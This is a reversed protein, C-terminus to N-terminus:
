CPFISSASDFTYGIGAGIIGFFIGSIVPVYSPCDFSCGLVGLVLGTSAGILFGGLSGKAGGKRKEELKTISALPITRLITRGLSSRGRRVGKSKLVLTDADLSVITGVLRRGDISPAKIRVRDGSKLSPAEEAVLEALPTLLLAMLLLWKM